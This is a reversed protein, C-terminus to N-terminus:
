TRRGRLVLGARGHIRATDPWRTSCWAPSSAACWTSNGGWRWHPVSSAPWAPSTSCLHSGSSGTAASSRTGPDAHRRRQVRRQRARQHRGQARRQDGLHLRAARRGFQGTRDGPTATRREGARGGAPGRVRRGSLTRAQRVAAARPPDAPVPAAPRGPRGGTRGPPRGARRQARRAGPRQDPRRLLHHGRPGPKGPPCRLVTRAHQRVAARDRRRGRRRLAGALTTRRVRQGVRWRWMSVSWDTRGTLSGRGTEDLRPPVATSRGACSGSRLM